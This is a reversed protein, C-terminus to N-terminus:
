GPTVRKFFSAYDYKCPRLTKNAEADRMNQAYAYACPSPTRNTEYFTYEPSISTNALHETQTQKRTM